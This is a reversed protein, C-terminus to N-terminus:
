LGLSPLIRDVLVPLPDEISAVIAEVPEELTAFQSELLASPMFHDARARLRANILDRSGRLYILRPAPLGAALRERYVQKLASCALFVPGGGAGARAKLEGNLRDLWGWRDADNLPIAAAMKAKNEPPHFDDADLFLGRTRSALLRAVSSKGCGSVGMVVFLPRTPDTKM